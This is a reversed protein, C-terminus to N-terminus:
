RDQKSMPLGCAIEIELLQPCLRHLDSDCIESHDVQGYMQREIEGAVAKLTKM